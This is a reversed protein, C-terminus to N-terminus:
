RTLQTIWTHGEMYVISIALLTLASALMVVILVGFSFGAWWASRRESLHRESATLADHDARALMLTLYREIAVDTAETAGEPPTTDDTTM